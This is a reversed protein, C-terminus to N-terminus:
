LAKISHDLTVAISYIFTIGWLAFGGWYNLTRDAPLHFGFFRQNLAELSNIDETDNQKEFRRLRKSLRYIKVFFMGGIIVLLPVRLFWPASFTSLATVGLFEGALNVRVIMQEYEKRSIPM